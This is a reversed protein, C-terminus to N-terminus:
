RSFFSIPVLAFVPLPNAARVELYYGIFSPTPVRAHEAIPSVLLPQDVLSPAAASM